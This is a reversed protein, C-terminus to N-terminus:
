GFGCAPRSRSAKSLRARVCSSAQFGIDNTEELTPVSGGGDFAVNFKRPLGYLSRKNLIHNHWAAALPRTDILAQPDVGATADGTV